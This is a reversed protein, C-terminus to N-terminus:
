GGMCARRVTGSAGVAAGARYCRSGFARPRGAAAAAHSGFPGGPPVTAAAVAVPCAM